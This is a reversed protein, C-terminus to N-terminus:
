KKPTEKKPMLWSLKDFLKNGFLVVVLGLTIGLIAGVLVDTPFHVFVYLRSFAILAAVPIAAYGFKKNALTLVTAGVASSCTHGSPFSFSTPREVLLEVAMDIHCPRARAILPKLIENGILSGLLM